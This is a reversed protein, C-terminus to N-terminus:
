ARRSRDRRRNAHPERKLPRARDRRHAAPGPRGSTGIRDLPWYTFFAVGIIWKEPVPGWFRSDDSDGRNDGMMYYMGHPVKISRKFTCEPVFGCPAIYSDPERVGNRYVHGAKITLM